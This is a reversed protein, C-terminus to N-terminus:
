PRVPRPAPNYPLRAAEQDHYHRHQVSAAVSGVIFAGAVTCVMPHQNCTACAPLALAILIVILAKM